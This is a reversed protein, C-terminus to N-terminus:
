KAYLSVEGKPRTKFRRHVWLYEEPNHRICREFHQNLRVLDATNDGSPLHDFPPLFVIEYGSYDPLRRYTIGVIPVDAMAALRPPAAVMAAEVGFWPVFESVKPGYDQDAAYWLWGGQRMTKVMGRVDRRSVTKSRPNHRERGYQQVLDYVPNNHPRYSMSMDFLRNIAVNTIELTNFHMAMILAGRPTGPSKGTGSQQLAQWCEVNKVVFRKRLRWSPMFWAIGTEFVTMGNAEFHKKVLETRQEVSYEPFCLEINREAVYRRTKMLRYLVRGLCRGLWMQLRFPLQALLASLALSVWTLWYRPHLLDIIRNPTSSM